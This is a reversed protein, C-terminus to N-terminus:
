SPSIFFNPNKSPVTANAAHGPCYAETSERRAIGFLLDGIELV